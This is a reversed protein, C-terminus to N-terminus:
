TRLEHGLGPFAVATRVVTWVLWPGGPMLLKQLKYQNMWSAETGVPRPNVSRLLCRQKPTM